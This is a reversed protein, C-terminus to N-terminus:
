TRADPLQREYVARGEVMQRRFARHKPPAKTEDDTKLKLVGVIATNPHIFYSKDGIDFWDGPNAHRLPLYQTLVTRSYQELASTEQMDSITPVKWKERKDVNRDVQSAVLFPAVGIALRSIEDAMDKYQVRTDRGGSRGIRQFYDVVVLKVKKGHSEIIYNFATEMDKVTIAGGSKRYEQESHGIYWLPTGAALIFADMAKKWDIDSRKESLLAPISLGAARSVKRRLQEEISEEMGVKVVIENPACNDANNEAITDLLTTKGHDTYAMVTHLNNILPEIMDDLDPIYTVTSAPPSTQWQEIQQRALEAARQPDYVIDNM